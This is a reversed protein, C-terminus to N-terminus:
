PYLYEKIIFNLGCLCVMYALIHLSPGFHYFGIIFGHVSGMCYPCSIFPKLYWDAGLETLSKRIPWFVNGEDFAAFVGWIWLSGIILLLIFDIM